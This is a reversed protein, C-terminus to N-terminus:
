GFVHRIKHLIKYIMPYNFKLNLTFITYRYKDALIYKEDDEGRDLHFFMAISDNNYFEKNPTWHTKMEKEIRHREKLSYRNIEEMASAITVRKNKLIKYNKEVILFYCYVYYDFCDWENFVIEQYDNKDIWSFFEGLTDSKYVPIENFWMNYKFNETEKILKENNKLGLFNACSSMLELGIDSQNSSLMTRNEWIEDLVENMDVEKIFLSECDVAAVYDYQSYITRIAYFKKAVIPNKYAGYYDPVVLLELNYVKEELMSRFKKKHEESSFVFCLDVDIKYKTRSNYFDVAFNFDNGKDYIPCVFCSKM